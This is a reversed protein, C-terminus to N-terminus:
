RFCTQWYEDENYAQTLNFVPKPHMVRLNRTHRTNGGRMAQEGKELVLVHAGLQRATIAASLGANGGGIVLVETASPVTNQRHHRIYQIM